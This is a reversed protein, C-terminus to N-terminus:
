DWIVGNKASVGKYRSQSSAKPVSRGVLGLRSLIAKSVVRITDRLMALAMLVCLAAVLILVQHASESAKDLAMKSSISSFSAGTVSKISDMSVFTSRIGSNIYPSYQKYTAAESDIVYEQLFEQWAEADGPEPYPATIIYSDGSRQLHNVVKATEAPYGDERLIVIIISDLNARSRAFILFEYLSDAFAEPDVNTINDTQGVDVIMATPTTPQIIAQASFSYLGSHPLGPKYYPDFQVPNLLKYQESLSNGDGRSTFVMETLQEDEAGASVDPTTIHSHRIGLAEAAVFQSSLRSFSEKFYAPGGVFEVYPMLQFNNAWERNQRVLTIPIMFGQMSLPSSRRTSVVQVVHPDRSLPDSEKEKNIYIVLGEADHAKTEEYSPTPIRILVPGKHTEEPTVFKSVDFPEGGDVSVTYTLNMPTTVRPRLVLDCYEGYSLFTVYTGPWLSAKFIERFRHWRGSFIFLSPQGLPTMVVGEPPKYKPNFTTSKVGNPDKAEVGAFAAALLAVALCTLLATWSKERSQLGVRM